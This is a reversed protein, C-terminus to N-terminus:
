SGLAVRLVVHSPFRHVILIEVIAAEKLEYLLLIACRLAVIECDIVVVSLVM